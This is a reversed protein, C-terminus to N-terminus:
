SGETGKPHLNFLFLLQFAAKAATKGEFEDHMEPPRRGLGCFPTSASAPAPPSPSGRWCLGCLCLQAGAVADGLGHIFVRSQAALLLATPINEAGGPGRPQGPARRSWSLPSARPPSLGPSPRPGRVLVGLQPGGSQSGRGPIRM